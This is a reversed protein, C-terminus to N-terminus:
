FYIGPIPKTTEMTLFGLTIKTKILMVMCNFISIATVVGRNDAMIGEISSIDLSYKTDFNELQNFNNYIQNSKHHKYIINNNLKETQENMEDYLNFKEDDEERIGQHVIRLYELKVTHGQAM